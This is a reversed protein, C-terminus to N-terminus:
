LSHAAPMVSQSQPQNVGPSITSTRIFKTTHSMLVPNTLAITKESIPNAQRM